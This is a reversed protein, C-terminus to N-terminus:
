YAGDTRLQDIDEWSFGAELLVEETHEGLSPAKHGPELPTASMRIPTGIVRDVSGDENDFEVFYRNILAGPDAAAEAYDRVPSYRQGAAQLRDCMEDTTYKPFEEDVIRELEALNEPTMFLTTFRDDDALDERGIAHAFGVWLHAPVGVLQIWGDSTPVMRLLGPILPHSRNARGPIMGSMLYHSYESAQAWIQSGLLSVDVRQGEGTRERHLLAALVGAVMNQCGMHDAIVAGVPTPEGGDYGTTSILGGAAQGLTDAGERTSDPGEPGFTSGAAYVLRPNIKSVEDYSLGWLEMTGPVFNHILVDATEILKEIARKGGPQRLDLTVSRKGRNSGVYFGSRNDDPGIQIWRGLDGTGPLEIKTVSAGMDHLMAAAQPGQVLIALDLVTYDDLAGMLWFKTSRHSM